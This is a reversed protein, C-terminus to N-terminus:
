LVGALSGANTVLNYYLPSPDDLAAVIAEIGPPARKEMTAIMLEYPEDIGPLPAYWSPIGRCAFYRGFNKNASGGPNTPSVDRVWYDQNIDAEYPFYIREATFVLVMDQRGSMSPEDFGRQPAHYFPCNVIVMEWEAGTPDGDVLPRDPKFVQCRWQLFEKLVYGLTFTEGDIPDM